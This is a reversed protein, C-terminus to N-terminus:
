KKVVRIRWEVKKMHVFRTKTVQLRHNVTYITLKNSDRFQTQLYNKYIRQFIVKTKPKLFEM